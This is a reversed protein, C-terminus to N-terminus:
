RVRLTVGEVSDVVVTAGTELPAASEDALVARWVEDGVRVRGASHPVISEMVLGKRGIVADINTARNPGSLKSRIRRRLFAGIAGLPGSM